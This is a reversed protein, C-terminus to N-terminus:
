EESESQPSDAPEDEAAPENSPYRDRTIGGNAPHDPASAFVVSPLLSKIRGVVRSSANRLGM